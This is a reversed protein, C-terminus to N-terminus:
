DPAPCPDSCRRSARCPQRVNEATRPHSGSRQRQTQHAQLHSQPLSQLAGAPAVQHQDRAQGWGTDATGHQRTCWRHCAPVWRAHALQMHAWVLSVLLQQPGRLLRHDYRRSSGGQPQWAFICTGAADVVRLAVTMSKVTQEPGPGSAAAMAIGGAAWFQVSRWGPAGDAPPPAHADVVAGGRPGASGARYRAPRQSHWAPQPEAGPM